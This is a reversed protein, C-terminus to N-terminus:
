GWNADMSADPAPSMHPQTARARVRSHTPTHTHPITVFVTSRKKGLKGNMGAQFATMYNKKEEEAGEAQDTIRSSHM